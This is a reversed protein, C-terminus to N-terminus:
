EREGRIEKELAEENGKEILQILENDNYKDM